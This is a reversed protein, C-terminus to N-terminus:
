ADEEGRANSRKNRNQTSMDVWRCNAPEYNGCPNIRDITCDGHRATEEYGNDLAWAKFNRYDHWAECVSVGMAGYYKYSKCNPNECRKKMTKWVSYLRADRDGHKTRVNSLIEKRQCGCSKTHGNVLDRGTATVHNGCDCICDWTIHRDKSRGNEKMVTLKGFRMGSLDNHKYM